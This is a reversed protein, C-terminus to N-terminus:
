SPVPDLDADVDYWIYSLFKPQLRNNSVMKKNQLQEETWVFVCFLCQYFQTTLQIEESVSDRSKYKPTWCSGVLERDTYRIVSGFVQARVVAAMNEGSIAVCATVAAAAAIFLRQPTSEEEVYCFTFLNMSYTGYLVM